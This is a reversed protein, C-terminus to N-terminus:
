KPNYLAKVTGDRRLTLVPDFHKPDNKINRVAAEFTDEKITVKWCEARHRVTEIAAKLRTASYNKM